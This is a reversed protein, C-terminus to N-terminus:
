AEHVATHLLDTEFGSIAHPAHSVTICHYLSVAHSVTDAWERSELWMLPLITSFLIARTANTTLDEGLPLRRDELTTLSLNITQFTTGIQNSTM